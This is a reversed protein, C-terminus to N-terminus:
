TFMNKQPYPSVHSAWPVQPDKIRILFCQIFLDLFLAKTPKFPRFDIEWISFCSSCSAPFIKKTQKTVTVLCHRRPVTNKICPINWVQYSSFRTPPIERASRSVCFHLRGEVLLSPGYVASFLRVCDGPHRRRTQLIRNQLEANEGDGAQKKKQLWFPCSPDSSFSVRRHNVSKKPGLFTAILKWSCFVCQPPWRRLTFFVSLACSGSWVIAHWCGTLWLTAVGM